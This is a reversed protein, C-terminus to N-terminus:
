TTAGIAQGAAVLVMGDVLGIFDRHMIKRGRQDVIEIGKGKAVDLVKDLFASLQQESWALVGMRKAVELIHAEFGQPDFSPGADTYGHLLQDFGADRASRRLLEAVHMALGDADALAPLWVRRKVAIRVWPDKDVLPTVTDRWSGTTGIKVPWCGRNHGFRKAPGGPTFVTVAVPGDTAAVYLARPAMLDFAHRKVLPWREKEAPAVAEPPPPPPPTDVSRPKPPPLKIKDATTFGDKAFYKALAQPSSKPPLTM